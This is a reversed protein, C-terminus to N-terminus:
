EQNPNRNIFSFMIEFNFLIIEVDTSYWAGPERDDTARVVFMEYVGPVFWLNYVNVKINVREGKKYKFFIEGM